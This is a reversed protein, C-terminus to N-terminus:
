SSAIQLSSWLQFPTKTPQPQKNTDIPTRHKRHALLSGSSDITSGTAKPAKLISQQIDQFTGSNSSNPYSHGNLTPHSHDPVGARSSPEVGILGVTTPPESPNLQVSIPSTLATSYFLLLYLVTNGGEGM